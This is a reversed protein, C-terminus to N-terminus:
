LLLSREADPLDGDLEFLACAASWITWSYPHWPQLEGDPGTPLDLLDADREIGYGDALAVVQSFMLRLAPDLDLDLSPRVRFTLADVLQGFLAVYRATLDRRTAEITAAVAAYDDDATSLTLLAKRISRYVSLTIDPEVMDANCSVRIMERCARKRGVPQSLDSDRIVVAAAGTESLFTQAPLQEAMQCLVDLQFARQSPWIREHVSAYTIRVGTNQELRDFVSKYSLAEPDVHAQRETMVEIGTTLMLEKLEARSRRPKKQTATAPTTMLTIFTATSLGGNRRVRRGAGSNM